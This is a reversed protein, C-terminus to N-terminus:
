SFEPYYHIAKIQLCSLSVVLLTALIGFKIYSIDTSWLLARNFRSFVCPNISKFISMIMSLGLVCKLLHM